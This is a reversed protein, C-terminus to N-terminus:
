HAPYPMDAPCYLFALIRTIPSPTYGNCVSYGIMLIKLFVRWFFNYFVKCKHDSEYISFFSAKPSSAPLQQAILYNGGLITEAHRLRPSKASKIQTFFLSVCPRTYRALL